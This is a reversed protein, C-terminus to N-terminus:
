LSSNYIVTIIGINCQGCSFKHNWQVLWAKNQGHTVYEGYTPVFQSEFVSCTPPQRHICPFSWLQASHQRLQLCHEHSWKFFDHWPGPTSTTRNLVVSCKWQCSLPQRCFVAWSRVYWYYTKRLFINIVLALLRKQIKLHTSSSQM